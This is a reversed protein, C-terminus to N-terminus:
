SADTPIPVNSPRPQRVHPPWLKYLVLELAWLIVATLLTLILWFKWYANFTEQWGGYASHSVNVNLAAPTFFRCFLQVILYWGLAFPWVGREMRVQRIAIVGVIIGGLHALTSSLFVGWAAVVYVLWVVFGPIMWITAVRILLAQNFFLGLALLLNGINCMWLVHGSENLSWYHVAQTLFFMLPLFGLLRLRLAPSMDRWFSHNSAEDM